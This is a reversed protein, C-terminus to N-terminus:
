NHFQKVCFSQRTLNGCTKAVFIQTVPCWADLNFDCKCVVFRCETIFVTLLLALILHGLPHASNFLALISCSFNDQGINRYKLGWHGRGGEGRMIIFGSFVTKIKRTLDRRQDHPFIPKNHIRLLNSVTVVDTGNRFGSLWGSKSEERLKVSVKCLYSFVPTKHLAWWICVHCHTQAFVLKQFINM